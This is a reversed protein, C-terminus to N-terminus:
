SKKKYRENQVEEKAVLYRSRNGKRTRDFEILGKDALDVASLLEANTLRGLSLRKKKIKHYLELTTDM